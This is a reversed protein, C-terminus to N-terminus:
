GPATRAWLPRLVAASAVVLALLILVAAPSGWGLPGVAAGWVAQGILAGFRGTVAYLGSAQGLREPPALQILLPRDTTWTCGLSLGALPAVAWFADRPLWGFGVAAAGAMVATWLVLVVRLAPAPGIRDVVRGWGLGGALAGAFGALILLDKEGDSFGIQVV